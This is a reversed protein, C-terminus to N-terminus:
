NNIRAFIQLEINREDTNIVSKIDFTKGNWTARDDAALTSLASQYRCVIRHDIESQQQMAAFREKGSTPEVRAWVTVITSWSQVPEGYANQTVTPTQLVVRHRLSGGDM